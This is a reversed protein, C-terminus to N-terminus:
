GLFGDWKPLRTVEMLYGFVGLLLRSLVQFQGLRVEKLVMKLRGWVANLVM